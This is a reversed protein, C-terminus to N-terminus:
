GLAATLAAVVDRQDRETVKPSLPLSVTRNSIDTAHPLDGPEIV